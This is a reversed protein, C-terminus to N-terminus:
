STGKLVVALLLAQVFDPALEFVRRDPLLGVLRLLEAALACAQLLGDVREIAQRAPERVRRREDLQRLLLAIRPSEGRDLLVQTRELGGQL